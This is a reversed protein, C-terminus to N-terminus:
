AQSFAPTVIGLYAIDTESAISKKKSVNDMSVAVM